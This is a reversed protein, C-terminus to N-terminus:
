VTEGDLRSACKYSTGFMKNHELMVGGRKACDLKLEKVMDEGRWAPQTLAIFLLIMAGIVAVYGIKDVNGADGGITTAM